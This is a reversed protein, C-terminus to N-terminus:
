QQPAREESGEKKNDAESRNTTGTTM